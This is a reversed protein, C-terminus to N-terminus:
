KENKTEPKESSVALDALTTNEMMEAVVDRVQKMVKRLGCKEMDPCGCTEFATASVCPIPALPGDLLRIVEALTIDEPPRALSYGGQAGKQSNVIRGHKLALLIQELFKTPINNREALEKNSIPNNTYHAALDQLARLGYEGRKSLKM